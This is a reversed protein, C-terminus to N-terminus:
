NDISWYIHLYPFPILSSNRPIINTLVVREEKKRTCVWNKRLLKELIVKFSFSRMENIVNFLINISKGRVTKDFSIFIM